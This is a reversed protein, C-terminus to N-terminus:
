AVMEGAKRETVTATISSPSYVPRSYKPTNGLRGDRGGEPWDDTVRITMACYLGTERHTTLAVVEGVDLQRGSETGKVLFTLM